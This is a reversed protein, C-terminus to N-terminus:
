YQEFIIAEWESSDELVLSMLNFYIKQGGHVWTLNIRESTEFNQIKKTQVTNEDTDGHLM